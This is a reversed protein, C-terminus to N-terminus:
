TYPYELKEKLVFHGVLNGNEDHLNRVKGPGVGYSETLDGAGIREAAHHLIRELERSSSYADIDGAEENTFAAGEVDIILAFRM